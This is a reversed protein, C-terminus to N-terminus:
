GLWLAAIWESFLSFVWQFFPVLRSEDVTKLAGSFLNPEALDTIQLLPSLLGILVALTFGTILLGIITGVGHDIGALITNETISRILEVLLKLFLDIILWILLFAAANLLGVALFQYIVDGLYTQAQLSLELSQIYGLLQTKLVGPLNIRDLYNGLQSLPIQDLQVQNLVDPLVLQKELFDQLREQANFTKNAWGTLLTYYKLGAFFGIITSVLGALSGIIGRRFGSWAGCALIFILILDVLNV